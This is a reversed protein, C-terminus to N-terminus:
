TNIEEYNPPALKLILDTLMKTPKEIVYKECLLYFPAFCQQRHTVYLAASAAGKALNDAVSIEGMATWAHDSAARLDVYSIEHNLWRRKATLADWLRPDPERGTKREDGLLKEALQISFEHL